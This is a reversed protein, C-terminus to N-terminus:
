KTYKLKKLSRGHSWQVKLELSNVNQLCSINKLHKKANFASDVNSIVCVRKEWITSRPINIRLNHNDTQSPTQIKLM